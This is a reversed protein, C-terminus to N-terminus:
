RSLESAAFAPDTHLLLYYRQDDEAKKREQPDLDLYYVYPQTTSPALPYLHSHAGSISPNDTMFFVTLANRTYFLDVAKLGVTLGLAYLQANTREMDSVNLIQSDYGASRNQIALALEISEPAENQLEQQVYRITDSETVPVNRQTLSRALETHETSTNTDSSAAKIVTDMGLLKAVDRANYVCEYYVFPSSTIYSVGREAFFRFFPIGTQKTADVLRDATLMVPNRYSHNKGASADRVTYLQPEGPALTCGPDSIQLLPMNSIEAALKISLPPRRLKSHVYTLLQQSVPPVDPIDLDPLRLDNQNCAFSLGEFCLARMRLRRENAKMGHELEDIISLVTPYDSQNRVMIYPPANDPVIKKFSQEFADLDRRFSAVARAAAERYRAADADSGSQLFTQRASELASADSLFDIPYLTDHVASRLEPDSQLAALSEATESLHRIADSMAQPNTGALALIPTRAAVAKEYALRQARRSISPEALVGDNLVVRGRVEYTTEDVRVRERINNRELAESFYAADHLRCFFIVVIAAFVLLTGGV